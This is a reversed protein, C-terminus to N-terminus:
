VGRIALRCRSAQKLPWATMGHRRGVHHHVAHRHERSKKDGVQEGRLVFPQCQQREQADGGVAVAGKEEVVEEKGWENAEDDSPQLPHELRARKEREGEGDQDM